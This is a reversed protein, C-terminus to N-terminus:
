ASPFDDPLATSSSWVFIVRFLARFNLDGLLLFWIVELLLLIFDIFIVEDRLAVKLSVKVRLPFLLIDKLAVKLSVKVRLPFLLIDKLIVKLSVKVRLPFLLIFTYWYLASLAFNNASKVKPDVGPSVEFRVEAFQRWSGSLNAFLVRSLRMVMYLAFVIVEPGGEPSVKLKVKVEEAFQRWSGSLNAFNVVYLAFVIVKPDGEPSVELKVKVEEPGGAGLGVSVLVPGWLSGLTTFVFLTFM